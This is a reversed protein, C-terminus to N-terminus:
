KEGDKTEGLMIEKFTKDLADRSKLMQTKIQEQIETEEKQKKKEEKEKEMLLEVDTKGTLLAEKELSTPTTVQPPLM